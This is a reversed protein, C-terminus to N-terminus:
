IGLTSVPDICCSIHIVVCFNYVTILESRCAPINSPLTARLGMIVRGWERISLNDKGLIDDRRFVIKRTINNLGDENKTDDEYKLIDANQLDDESKIKDKNKSTTKMKATTEM